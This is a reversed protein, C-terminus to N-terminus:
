EEGFVLLRYWPENTSQHKVNPVKLVFM